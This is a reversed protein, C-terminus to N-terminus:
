GFIIEDPLENKNEGHLPFLTKLIVGIAEVCSTIGLVYEEKFFALALKKSQENWFVSETKEIIAKDGYLAFDQDKYAIYILVANRHETEYMKLNRFIEAARHLPEMYSCHGEICIRIEGSTGAENARVCAMIQETEQKSLFKNSKSTRFLM